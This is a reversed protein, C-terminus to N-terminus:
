YAEFVQIYPEFRDAFLLNASGDIALSGELYDRRNIVTGPNTWTGLGSTDKGVSMSGRIDGQPTLRVAAAFEAILAWLFGSRYALAQVDASDPPEEPDLERVGEGGALSGLVPTLSGDTFNALFVGSERSDGLFASLGVYVESTEGAIVALAGVNLDAGDTQLPVTTGLSGGSQLPTLEATSSDASMWYAEPLGPELPAVAVRRNLLDPPTWTELTAGVYNYLRVEDIGSEEYLAFRGERASITSVIGLSGLPLVRTRVGNPDIRVVSGLFNDYIFVTGLEDSTILLPGAFAGADPDPWSIEVTDSSLDRVVRGFSDAVLYDGTTRAAVPVSEVFQYSGLTGPASVLPSVTNALNIVAAPGFTGSDRLAVITDPTGPLHDLAGEWGSAGGSGAAASVTGGFETFTWPDYDGGSSFGARSIRLIGNASRSVALYNDTVAFGGRNGSVSDNMDPILRSILVDDAEPDYQLIGPGDDSFFALYLDGSDNLTEIGFIEADWDSGLNVESIVANQLQEGGSIVARLLVQGASVFVHLDPGNNWLAIDADIELERPLAVSVPADDSLGQAYLRSTLDSVFFLQQTAAHWEADRPRPVGGYFDPGLRNNLEGVYRYNLDPDAPNNLPQPYEFLSCSAFGALLLGALGLVRM